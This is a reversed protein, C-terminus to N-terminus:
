LANPRYRYTWFLKRAIRQVQAQTIFASTVKAVVSHVSPRKEM